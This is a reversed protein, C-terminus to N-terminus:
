RQTEQEEGPAPAAGPGSRTLGRGLLVAAAAECRLGLLLHLNSPSHGPSTSASVPASRQFAPPFTKTLDLATGPSMRRQVPLHGLM